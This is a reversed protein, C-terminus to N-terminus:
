APQIGASGTSARGWFRRWADNIANHVFVGSQRVADRAQEPTYDAAQDLDVGDFGAKGALGLREALSLAKGEVKKTIMGLKCSLLIRKGEPPRVPSTSEVDQASAERATSALLSAAGATLFCRRSVSSPTRETQRKM